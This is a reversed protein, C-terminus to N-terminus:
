GLDSWFLPEGIFLWNAAIFVAAGIIVGQLVIWLNKALMRIDFSSMDTIGLGILTVGWVITTEKTKFALFLALGLLRIVWPNLHNDKASRVYIATLVLVAIMASTDIQPALLLQVVIPLGLLIAVAIVGRMIQRTKSMSRASYYALLVALGSAIASYYRLGELPSPFLSTLIRLAYIHVYRNLMHESMGRRFGINIYGLMDSGALQGGNQYFFRAILLTIALVTVVELISFVHSTREREIAARFDRQFTPGWSSIAPFRERAEM